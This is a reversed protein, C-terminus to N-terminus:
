ALEVIHLMWGGWGVSLEYEGPADESLLEKLRELEKSFDVDFPAEGWRSYPSYSLLLAPVRDRDLTAKVDEAGHEEYTSLIYVKM